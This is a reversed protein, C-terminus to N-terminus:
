KSVLVKSVAVKIIESHIKNQSKVTVKSVNLGTKFKLEILFIENTVTKASFYAVIQQGEAIERKAIFVIEKHSLKHKIVEVDV